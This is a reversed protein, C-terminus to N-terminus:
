EGESETTQATEQTPGEGTVVGKGRCVSCTLHTGPQAGRGGCFGCVKHPARIVVFGKGGCAPCRGGLLTRLDEGSGECRGCKVTALNAAEAAQAGVHRALRGPKM